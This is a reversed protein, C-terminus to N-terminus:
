NILLSSFRVKRLFETVDYVFDGIIIWCDQPTFHEQVEKLSYEPLKRLDVSESFIDISKCFISIRSFMTVILAAQRHINASLFTM